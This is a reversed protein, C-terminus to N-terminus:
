PRLFHQVSMTIAAGVGIFVLSWIVLGFRKLSAFFFSRDAENIIKIIKAKVLDNKALGDVFFDSFLNRMKVASEHAERLTIAIKESDGFKNELEKVRSTLDAINTKHAGLNQFMDPLNFDEKNPAKAM